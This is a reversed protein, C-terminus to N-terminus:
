SPLLPASHTPPTTTSCHPTRVYTAPPKTKSPVVKDRPLAPGGSAGTCNTATTINLHDVGLMFFLAGGAATVHPCEAGAFAVSQARYPGEPQDATAHVFQANYHMCAADECVSNDWLHWTGGGDRAVTGGWASTRRADDPLASPWLVTSPRAPDIALQGCDPGEWGKECRCAGGVMAGNLQCAPVGRARRTAIIPRLPPTNPSGTAPSGVLNAILLAAVRAM